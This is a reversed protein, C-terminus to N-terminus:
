GMSGVLAEMLRMAQEETFGAETYADFLAKQQRAALLMEAMLGMASPKNDSM